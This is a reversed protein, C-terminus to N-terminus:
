TAARARHGEEDPSEALTPEGRTVRWIVLAYAGLLVGNALAAVADAFSVLGAALVGLALYAVLLKSRSLVAM